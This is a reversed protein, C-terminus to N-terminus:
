LLNVEPSVQIENEPQAMLKQDGEACESCGTCKAWKCKPRKQTGVTVKWGLGSKMISHCTPLCPKQLLNVEPSVQIENDPQAMLKQDGEACESCGTCKAWKCKPRKQTGVTVKWGLGGM